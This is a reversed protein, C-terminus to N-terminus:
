QKKCFFRKTSEEWPLTGPHTGEGFIPLRKRKGREKMGDDWCRECNNIIMMSSPIPSYLQNNQSGSNNMRINTSCRPSFCSSPSPDCHSIMCKLQSGHISKHMTFHIFTSLIPVYIMYLCICQSINHSLSPLKPKYHIQNYYNICVQGRHQSRQIVELEWNGTWKSIVWGWACKCCPM